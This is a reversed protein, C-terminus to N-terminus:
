RMVVINRTRSLGPLRYPSVQVLSRGEGAAVERLEAEQGEDIVGMMLLITAEAHLIHRGLRLVEAAPLAARTIIADFRRGAYREDVGEEGLRGWVVEIGALDLRDVVHQNFSVKKRRAELLAVSIEPRFIKIPIGPLGGGSGVDLLREVGSLHSLPTVADLVHRLLVEEPGKAATLNIKENWRLLETVYTRIQEIQLPTPKVGFAPAHRLFKEIARDINRGKAV